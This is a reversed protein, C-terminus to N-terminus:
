RVVIETFLNDANAGGCGYHTVAAISGIIKTTLKVGGAEITVVREKCDVTVTVSMADAKGPNLTTKAPEVLKGAIEMTRRGGYYLRCEIWDEPKDSTGCIFFANGHRKTEPRRKVAFRFVAKEMPRDVPYIAYGASQDKSAVAFGFADKAITANILRFKEINVNAVPAPTKVPAQNTWSRAIAAPRWSEIPPNHFLALSAFMPYNCVCGHGLMPATVIGGAPIFSTTCGSRVSNLGIMRNHPIDYLETAADRYVLLNNNGIIRACTRPRPISTNEGLEKGTLIDLLFGFCGKYQSLVIYDDTVVPPYIGAVNKAAMDPKSWVPSGDAARFLHVGNRNVTLVVFAHKANYSLEPAVPPLWPRPNDVEHRLVAAYTAPKQWIVKGDEPNMAFLLGSMSADHDLGFLTNGGVAYTTMKRTSARSWRVEGTHRDIAVLNKGLMTVLLDKWLRVETWSPAPQIFAKQGM